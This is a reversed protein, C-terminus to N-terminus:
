SLFSWVPSKCPVTGLADNELKVWTFPFCEQWRQKALQASLLKLM